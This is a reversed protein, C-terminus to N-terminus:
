DFENITFGDSEDDFVVFFKGERNELFEDIVESDCLDLKDYLDDDDIGVGYKQFFIQEYGFKQVFEIV